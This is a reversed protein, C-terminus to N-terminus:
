INYVIISPTIQAQCKNGKVDPTIKVDQNLGLKYEKNSYYLFYDEEGIYILTKTNCRGYQNLGILEYEQYLLESSKGKIIGCNSVLEM